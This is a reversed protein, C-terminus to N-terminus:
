LWLLLKDIALDQNIINSCFMRSKGDQTHTLDSQEAYNDTYLSILFCCSTIAEWTAFVSMYLIQSAWITGLRQKSCIVDHKNVHTFATPPYKQVWQDRVFITYIM